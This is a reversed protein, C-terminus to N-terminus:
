TCCKTSRLRGMLVEKQPMAQSTEMCPECMSYDKMEAFLIRSVLISSLVRM